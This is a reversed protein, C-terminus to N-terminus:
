VNTQAKKKEASEVSSPLGAFSEYRKLAHLWVAYAHRLRAMQHRTRSLEDEHAECAQEMAAFLVCLRENRVPDSM